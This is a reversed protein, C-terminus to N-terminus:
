ILLLFIPLTTSIAPSASRLTRADVSIGLDYTVIRLNSFSAPNTFNVTQGDAYAVSTGGMGKTLIHQSYMFDGLGYRSYPSNEQASATTIILISFFVVYVIRRITSTSQM